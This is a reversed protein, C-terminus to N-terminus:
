SPKRTGAAATHYFNRISRVHRSSRLGMPTSPHHPLTAPNQLPLVTTTSEHVSVWCVDNVLPQACRASVGRILITSCTNAGQAVKKIV